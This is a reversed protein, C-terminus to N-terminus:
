PLNQCNKRLSVWVDYGKNALNFAPSEEPGHMFLADSSDFAGHQFIIPKSNVSTQDKGHPVRFATLIYGDETTIQHKELPYGYNQAIEEVTLSQDDATVASILM